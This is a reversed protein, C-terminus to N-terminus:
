LLDGYLQEYQHAVKSISFNDEIHKRAKLGLESLQEPSISLLDHWARALAVPNGPPVIKGTNGVIYSADGVDTAVCPVGCAMAEGLVNPFGEGFSSTLTGIDFCPFIAHMDPREGLLYVRGALGKSQIMKKVDGNDEDMGKGCLVFRVHNSIARLRGAAAFFNAHDKMPDYRAAMGIIRDSAEMGFGRRYRTRAELSPRYRQVDFGNPIVEWRKPHYGKQLHFKKGPGSNVVVADPLHSLRSLLCFIWRTTLAYYRFDVKSCRVNWVIRHVGSLKGVLLGLLDAHYLWTQIIEPKWTLVLKALLFLGRLLVIGRGMKLNYVTVGLSKIHKDLPGVPGLSVVLNTFREKDLCSLLKYLMMEAGGIDLDTIIHMVRIVFGGM